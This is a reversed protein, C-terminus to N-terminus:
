PKASPWQKRPQSTTRTKSAKSEPAKSWRTAPLSNGEPPLGRGCPMDQVQRALDKGPVSFQYLAHHLTDSGLEFWPTRM